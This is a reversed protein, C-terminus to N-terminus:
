TKETNCKRNKDQRDQKAIWIKMEDRSIEQGWIRREEM